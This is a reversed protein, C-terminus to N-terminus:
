YEAVCASRQRTVLIELFFSNGLSKCTSLFRPARSCQGGECNVALEAAVPNGTQRRISHSSVARVAKENADILTYRDQPVTVM